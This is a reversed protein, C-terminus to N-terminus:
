SYKMNSRKDRKERLAELDRCMTEFEIYLRPNAKKARVHKIYPSFKERMNLFYSGSMRDIIVLDFIGINVGAALHEVNSLFEKIDVMDGPEIEDINIVKGEGFKAVIKDSIPRYIARVRNVYEVTSQKERREHDAKFTRYILFLQIWLAFLTATGIVLSLIQFTTM